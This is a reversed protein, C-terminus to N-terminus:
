LKAKITKIETQTDAWKYCILTLGIGNIENKILMNTFHNTIREIQKEDVDAYVIIGMPRKNNM